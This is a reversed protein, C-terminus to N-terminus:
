LFELLEKSSWIRIELGAIERFHKDSSWIGDNDVSLALALLPVDKKDRGGIIEDAMPLKQEYIALPMVLVPQSQIVQIAEQESFVQKRKFVDTLELVNFDSTYFLYAGSNLVRREPGNFLLASFLMTSDALVHVPKQM